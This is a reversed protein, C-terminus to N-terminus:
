KGRYFLFISEVEEPTLGGHMAYFNQEFRGKEHWWTSHSGKALIALSAMREACKPSVGKPGFFGQKVLDSTLCVLAKDKFEATLEEKVEELYQPAVHLFFDRCSGTPALPAGDAGKQLKEPLHPLRENLYYTTAPDIDIMGHDATVLLATSSLHMEPCNMLQEELERFGRDLAELAQSSRFGHRHAEADFDGYYLYFLGPSKLHQKLAALAESWKQYGIREAGQYMWRSYVSNAITQHQFVKTTIGQKKLHEFFLTQPLFQSPPLESELRGLQKDGAYTYLLPAVVRQLSPEYIFWEYIGHEGVPMNSCLTTIHATTTTPFQSSIKSVIGQNFFRKLFPYRDRYQELFRWGFGDILLLLVRDYPGEQICDKPLGGAGLGLLSLLTNPIQAFAYTDYLPKLFDASFRSAAVAALSKENLM